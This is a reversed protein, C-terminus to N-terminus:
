AITYTVADGGYTVPEGGFTVVEGGTDPPVDPDPVFPGLRRLVTLTTGVETEAVGIVFVVTPTATYGLRDGTIAVVEGLLDQRRGLVEVNEKALPGGMFGAFRSAAGIAATRGDVPTTIEYAFGRDGWDVGVPIATTFLSNAKLYDALGTDVSPM